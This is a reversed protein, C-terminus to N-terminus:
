LKFAKKFRENLPSLVDQMNKILPEWKKVKMNRQAWIYRLSHFVGLEDEIKVRGKHYSDITHMSLPDGNRPLQLVMIDADKIGKIRRSAPEEELFSKYAAMQTFASAYVGGTKWDAVFLKGDIRCVLDVTGAIRYRPSSVIRESAILEITHENKWKHFSSIAPLEDERISNGDITEGKLDKEVYAHIRSGLDSVTDMYHKYARLPDEQPGFTKLAWGVLFDKGEGKLITSVSVYLDGKKLDTTVEGNKDLLYCNYNAM